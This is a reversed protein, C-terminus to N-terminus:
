ITELRRTRQAPDGAAESQLKPRPPRTLRLPRTPRSLRIRPPPRKRRPSRRCWLLQRSHTRSPRRQLRPPPAPRRPRPRAPRRRCHSRSQSSSGYARRAARNRFFALRITVQGSDIGQLDWDALHGSSTVQQNSPSGIPFWDKPDAGKGYEVLYHDFQATAGAKGRIEVTGGTLVAGTGPSDIALIPRPDSATCEADPYFQLVDPFNYRKAWAIGDPNTTLWARAAPDDVAITLARDLYQNNQNCAASARLGTFTDLYIDRWLDMGSPLPPNDAAFYESRSAPCYTSPEAGSVTCILKEIIGAPAVFPTPNDDTLQHIATQMVDAWIPAAGTVGTTGEMPTNDPNGVWVGVAVDPTYGLTWNDRFDNTTGTKAAAPFALHLVSNPGYMPTRADNDSLISSILFAIEPSIAQQGAPPTYTYVPDGNYTTIRTISYPPMRLGGNALTAYAGTLELPTVEGGGLTLALGYDTRTLTTIGFRKAFALFGEVQPTSPDDYIGVFQLTKVAPINYSNALATRATVPGHFKGDYNVPTYPPSTDFPDSSPPFSTPVDWILTAPTWGKEFAASYTLPKISSGPQRPQVAMNIQGAPQAYYDPSGVMALIEGTSPRIAVIAGGTIHKATLDQVQNALITQASDELTPDLTTYVQFGSRYIVQPDYMSELEQRIYNVWHPYRIDASPPTFEYAQIETWAAGADEVSVCVRQADGGPYICGQEQSAEVMAVLVQKDRELTADRNSFIDYVSPAQPIGALFAAQTLTLKDATTHFYTEAAAEVGYALNGYSFENLYLELIEEKSYRRTIEVALLAERVKRLYSRDTREEPDMLFTRALQQTITSAGSVTEGSSFNQYFARVVAAPDFGPHSFYNKDEVAVTAAVMYPSIKSLPTYTRRGANPDIIEYLLDGNRDYIRTTEFQAAKAQLDEVSPLGSSVQYYMYIIVGSAVFVLALGTFFGAVLLRMLCGGFTRRHARRSRGTAAM